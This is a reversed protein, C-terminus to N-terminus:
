SSSSDLSGSLDRSGGSIEKGGGSGGDSSGNLSSSAGSQATADDGTTVTSVGTSSGSGASGSGASGPTASVDDNVSRATGGDDGSGSGGSGSGRGSVSTSGSDDSGSGSGVGSSPGRGSASGSGGGGGRTVAGADGSSTSGRGGLGRGSTGSGSGGSGSGGSGSGGPGRNGATGGSKPGGTSAGASSSGNAHGDGGGRSSSPSGHRGSRSGSLRGEGGRGHRDERPAAGRHEVLRLGSTVAAPDSPSATAASATAASTPALRAAAGVHSHSAHHRLSAASPAAHHHSPFPHTVAVGTAIAGSALLTGVKLVLGGSAASGAGIAADPAADVASRAAGHLRVLPFPVLATAAQRLRLRARHVLQRVAGESLGMTHAVQARPHGLVATRLLADRQRDPLASLEALTARATARRQVTEELPEGYATVSDLPADIPVRGKTVANRLIQHLWGRLHQVDAGAQLAAFANLFAQQVADEGRGDSTLRRAHAQLEREYRRVIAAFAADHGTQVLGVLHEDPEADLLRDSGELLGESIAVAM